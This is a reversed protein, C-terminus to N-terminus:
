DSILEEMGKELLKLAQKRDDWNVFFSISAKSSYIEIVNIGEKALPDSLRAIIGPTEIFKESEAVLMAVGGQSAVSKMVKDESVSEHLIELARELQEETVYVSFSRPGISVGFINIDSESLPNVARVLVGPETQMGEGVVTLMALSDPYLDVSMEEGRQVSGEILTGDGRLDGQGFHIIKANMDPEKYSLSRHHLIRAGYRALDCLEGATIRKLLLPNEIRRPDASMVGEVDTVIILDTANLCRGLLFATIDSGGRGLTTIQGREDKGLFGCIVPVADDLIPLIHKKILEKSREVDPAADGFNSDTIIPWESDWPDLAQAKVGLSWLSTKFVQASIREGIAMISDLDKPSIQGETSSEAIDILRDTTDGMASVVVAVRKGREFENKVSKAARRVLEGNELSTGGFKVVIKEM